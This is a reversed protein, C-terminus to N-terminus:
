ATRRNRRWVPDDYRDTKAGRQWAPLELDACICAGRVCGCLPELERVVLVEVGLGGHYATGGVPEYSEAALDDLQEPAARRFELVRTM